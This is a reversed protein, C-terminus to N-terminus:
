AIVAEVLEGSAVTETSTAIVNEVKRALTDILTAFETVAELAGDEGWGAVYPVTEGAIDLGVGALVVLTTTDVIVESQARTYKEYDVGLAHVTEHVLTRLQGNASQDADVVIQKAHQNCWGGKAGPIPQIDVTYGLTAAFRTLPAILHEHSDGSLPERPPALPLQEVGPLPDTQSVSFVSATKFFVRTHEREADSGAGPSQPQDRHKVTVPALVKLSTEGRRVCRGLKLWTRFGAVPEPEIGRRHFALALLMCNSSSYSHMLARTRVWRAWGESSLLEQAAQKVRERDQTRRQEREQDSLQKNRTKPM